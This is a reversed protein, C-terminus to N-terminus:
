QPQIAFQDHHFIENQVVRRTIDTRWTMRQGNGMVHQLRSTANCGLRRVAQKAPVAQATLLVRPLRPRGWRKSIITDDCAIFTSARHLLWM